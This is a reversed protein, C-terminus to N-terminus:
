KGHTGNICICDVTPPVDKLGQSFMDNDPNTEATYEMWQCAKTGVEEGYVAKIWAVFGDTGASVGSTTWIKDSSKVWRARAVWYTAASTPKSTITAWAHKNTTAKLGCLAGARAAIDAGTCVTILYKLKDKMKRVWEVADDNVDSGLGGPILLVELDEPADYITHDPVIKQAICSGVTWNGDNDKYAPSVPDLTKESTIVSLTVNPIYKPGIWEFEKRSIVNLAEIPGFVDLVEFGPYLLLGYKTPVSQPDPM